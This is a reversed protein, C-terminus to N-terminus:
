WKIQRDAWKTHIAYIRMLFIVSMSMLVNWETPLTSWFEALLVYLVAGLLACTGYLDRQMVVPTQQCLVDRAMGGAIGTIAGMLVAVLPDFGLELAKRVGVICFLALGLADCYDLLRLRIGHGPTVRRVALIALGATPLIALLYSLDKVWFVPLAGLLIDRLTGGGVSAVGALLLAGFPDMKARSAQAVASIAMAMTGVMAMVFFIQEILEQSM